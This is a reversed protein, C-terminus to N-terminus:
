LINEYCEDLRDQFTDGMAVLDFADSVALANVIAGAGRHGCGVIGLKLQKSESKNSSAATSYTGLFTSGIAALSSKKIFKRRGSDLKKKMIM